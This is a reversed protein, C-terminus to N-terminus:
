MYWDAEFGDAYLAALPPFRRMWRVLCARRAEIDPDAASVFVWPLHEPLACAEQNVLVRGPLLRVRVGDVGLRAAMAGHLMSTSQWLFLSADTLIARLGGTAFAGTALARSFGAVDPNQWVSCTTGDADAIVAHTPVFRLLSSLPALAPVAPNGCAHCEARRM